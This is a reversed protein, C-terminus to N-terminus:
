QALALFVSSSRSAAISPVTPVSSPFVKPPLLPLLTRIEEQFILPVYDHRQCAGNFRFTKDADTNVCTLEQQFFAQVLCNFSLEPPKRWSCVQSRSVNLDPSAGKM